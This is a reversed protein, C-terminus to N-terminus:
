AITWAYPVMGGYQVGTGFLSLCKATTTTNRIVNNALNVRYPVYRVTRVLDINLPRRACQVPPYM